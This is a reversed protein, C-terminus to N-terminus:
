GSAVMARRWWRVLGVVTVWAGCAAFVVAISSPEPAAVTPLEVQASFRAWAGASGGTTLAAVMGVAPLLFGALGIVLPVVTRQREWRERRRGAIEATARLVSSVVPDDGESEVPSAALSAIEALARCWACGEAHRRLGEEIEMGEALAEQYRACEARQM